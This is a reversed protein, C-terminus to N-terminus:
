LAQLGWLNWLPVDLGTLDQFISFRSSAKYVEFAKFGFELGTLDIFYKL